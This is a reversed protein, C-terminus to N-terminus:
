VIRENVFRAGRGDAEILQEIDSGDPAPLASVAEAVLETIRPFAIRGALFAAVAAEDAGNLVATKGCAAARRALEVAPFAEADHPEFTLKQMDSMKLRPLGADARDPWTLAYLIPLRMDPLGLQAIVAGDAFACMSHVISQRHVTVEIDDPAVGFLRAAEIIELGKNMMTASDVTVKAGMSWNPHRLAMEPTVTRLFERTKGFFPGGSATLIIKELPNDGRQNLCQFIASHESDVPLLLVGRARARMTVAEGGVVLTEKNALAINKGSDIACLVPRLGAVGSMAAVACDAGDIAAAECPDDSVRVPTDALRVRLERAAGADSLVALEPLFRRAQAEMLEASSKAALAKVPLSLRGAIDLTQRGISGTSGLLTIAKVM